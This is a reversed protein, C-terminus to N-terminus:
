RPTSQTAASTEAADAFDALGKQPLERAEAAFTQHIAKKAV